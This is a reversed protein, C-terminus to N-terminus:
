LVKVEESSWDDYGNILAEGLAVVEERVGAAVVAVPGAVERRSGRELSVDPLGVVDHLDTLSCSM